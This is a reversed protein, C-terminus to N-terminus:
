RQVTCMAKGLMIIVVATVGIKTSIIPTLMLDFNMNDKTLCFLNM